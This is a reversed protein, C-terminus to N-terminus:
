ETGEKAAGTVPTIANRAEKIRLLLITTNTNGVCPRAMEACAEAENALKTLAERLREADREAAQRAVLEEMRKTHQHQAEREAAEARARWYHAKPGCRILCSAWDQCCPEIGRAEERAKREADLQESTAQHNERENNYLARAKALERELQRALEADVIEYPQDGRGHDVVADTKPTDTM